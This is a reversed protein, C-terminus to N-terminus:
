GNEVRYTELSGQKIAANQGAKVYGLEYLDSKTGHPLDIRSSGSWEGNSDTLTVIAAHQGRLFEITANFKM